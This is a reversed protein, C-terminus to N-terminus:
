NPIPPAPPLLSLSLMILLLFALLGSLIVAIKENSSLSEAITETDSPPLHGIHLPLPQVRQHAILWAAFHPEADKLGIILYATNPYYAKRIDESSPLPESRPHSHYIGILDLGENALSPLHQSLATRDMEYHHRPDSAANAVPVVKVARSGQGAILGCAENPAEARVHAVIQQAQEDTLWLHNM